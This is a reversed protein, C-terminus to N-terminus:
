NKTPNHGGARPNKKETRTNQRHRKIRALEQRLQAVELRLNTLDQKLELSERLGSIERILAEADLNSASTRSHKRMFQGRYHMPNFGIETLPM